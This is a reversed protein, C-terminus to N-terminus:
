KDKNNKNMEMENMEIRNKIAEKRGSVKSKTEKINIEARIKFIEKKRSVRPNKM